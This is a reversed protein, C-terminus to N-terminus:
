FALILFSGLECIKLHQLDSLLQSLLFLHIQWLQFLLQEASVLILMRQQWVPLLLAM